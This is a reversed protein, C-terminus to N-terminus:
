HDDDVYGYDIFGHGRGSGLVTNRIASSVWHCSLCNDRRRVRVGAMGDM